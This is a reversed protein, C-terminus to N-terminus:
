RRRGGRTSIEDAVTRYYSDLLATIISMNSFVVVWVLVAPWGGSGISFLLRLSIELYLLSMVGRVIYAPLDPHRERDLRWYPRRSM